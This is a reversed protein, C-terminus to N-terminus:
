IFHRKAFARGSGSNLYREFKVASNADAFEVAAVMRWPRDRATHVSGGANHTTLREDLDSTLGVYYRSSDTQSRLISVVRPANAM